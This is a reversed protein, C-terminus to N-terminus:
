MEDPKNDSAKKNSQKSSRKKEKKREQIRRAATARSANLIACLEDAEQRLRKVSDIPGYRRTELVDLWFESEDAEEVM